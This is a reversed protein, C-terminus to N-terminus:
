LTDEAVSLCNEVRGSGDSVIFMQQQQQNYMNPPNMFMPQMQPQVFM